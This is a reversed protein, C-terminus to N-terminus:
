YGHHFGSPHNQQNMVMKTCTSIQTHRNTVTRTCAITQTFVHINIGIKVTVQLVITPKIQNTSREQDVAAILATCARKLEDDLAQSQPMCQNTDGEPIVNTCTDLDAMPILPAVPSM